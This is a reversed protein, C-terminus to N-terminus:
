VDAVDQDVSPVAQSTEASRSAAIGKPAPPVVGNAAPPALSEAKPRMARMGKKLKTLEQELNALGEGVKVSEQAM